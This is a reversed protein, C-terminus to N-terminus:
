NCIITAGVIRCATGDSGMLTNGVYRYSVGNSGMLSTGVQTYTVGGSYSPPSTVTFNRTQESLQRSSEAIAENNERISQRTAERTAAFQQAAMAQQHNWMTLQQDTMADRYGMEQGDKDYCMIRTDSLASLMVCTDDGAMYYRGNYFNPAPESACASLFMLGLLIQTNKM